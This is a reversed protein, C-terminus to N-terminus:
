IKEIWEDKCGESCIGIFSMAFVARLPSVSVKDTLYKQKDKRFECVGHLIM